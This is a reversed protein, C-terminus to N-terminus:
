VCSYRQAVSIYTCPPNQHTYGHSIAYTYVAELQLLVHYIYGGHICIHLGTWGRALLEFYKM